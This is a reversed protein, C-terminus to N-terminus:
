ATEKPQVTLLYAPCSTVSGEDWQVIMLGAAPTSGSMKGQVTGPTGTPERTVRDGTQPIM